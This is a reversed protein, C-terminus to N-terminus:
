GGFNHDLYAEKREIKLKKKKLCPRTICDLSVKFECDEQMLMGLAPSECAHAVV